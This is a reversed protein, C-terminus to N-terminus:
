RTAKAKGPPTKDSDALAQSPKAAIEAEAPKGAGEAQAQRLRTPNRDPLPISASTGAANAEVPKKAVGGGRCRFQIMEEVSLFQRVRDIKTEDLNKKVWDPGRDLAAQMEPTLLKTREVALKACSAKDLPEAQSLSAGLMAPAISVLLTVVFRRGTM